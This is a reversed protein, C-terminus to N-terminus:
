GDVVTSPRARRGFGAWTGVNQHFRTREAAWVQCPLSSVHGLGIHAHQEHLTGDPPHVVRRETDDVHGHGLWARGVHEHAHDVEGDIRVQPSPHRAGEVLALDHHGPAHALHDAGPVFAELRPVQHPAEETPLLVAHHTPAFPQIGDVGAEPHGDGVVDVHQAHRTEGRPDADVHQATGLRGLRHEHGGGGARHSRDGPLQGLQGTGPGHSRGARRGLDAVDDVREPEVVAEVVFSGGELGGPQVPRQGAVARGPDVDVELVDAAGHQFRDEGAHVREAPDRHAPEDRAVVGDVVRAHLAEGVDEALPEADGAEGDVIVQPAEVAPLRLHDLEDDAALNAVVFLEPLADGLRGSGEDAHQM